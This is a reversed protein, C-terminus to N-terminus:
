KIKGTPPEASLQRANHHITLIEVAPWDELVRYIVRYNGLILERITANKFEPVVRGMRPMTELKDTAEFAKDAFIRAAM